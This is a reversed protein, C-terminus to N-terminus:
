RSGGKLIRTVESVGDSLARIGPRVEQGYVSRNVKDDGSRANVEFESLVSKMKENAAQWTQLSLHGQQVKTQANHLAETAYNLHTISENVFYRSEETRTAYKQTNLQEKLLDTKAIVEKTDETVKQLAQASAPTQSNIAATQAEINSTEAEQRKINSATQAVQTASQVAQGGVSQMAIKSPVQGGNNSAAAASASPGSATAGGLNGAGGQSVTLMPNLGAAKMDGVARQYQTNSMDEQWDRTKQAEDRNFTRATNAEASNFNRSNQAEAANFAINRDFFQQAQEAGMANIATNSQNQQHATYASAATAAASALAMMTFPEM